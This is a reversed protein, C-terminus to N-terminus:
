KLNTPCGVPDFFFIWFKPKGPLVPWHSTCESPPSLQRKSDRHELSFMQIFPGRQQRSRMQPNPSGQHLDSTYSTFARDLTSSVRTWGGGQFFVFVEKEGLCIHGLLPSAASKIETVWYPTVQSGLFMKYTICAQYKSTHSIQWWRRGMEFTPVTLSKLKAKKSMKRLMMRKGEPFFIYFFFIPDIHGMGLVLCISNRYFSWGHIWADSELQEGPPTPPCRSHPFLVPIPPRSM